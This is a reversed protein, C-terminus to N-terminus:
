YYPNKPTHLTIFGQTKLFSTLTITARQLNLNFLDDSTRILFSYAHLEPSVVVLGGAM